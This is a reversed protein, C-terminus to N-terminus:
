SDVRTAKRDEALDNLHMTRDTGSNGHTMAFLRVHIQLLTFGCHYLYIHLSDPPPGPLRSGCEDLAGSVRGCVAIVPLTRLWTQYVCLAFTLEGFVGLSIEKSSASLVFLLNM